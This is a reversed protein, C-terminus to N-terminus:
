AESASKEIQNMATTTQETIANERAVLTEDKTAVLGSYREWVLVIGASSGNMWMLAFFPMWTVYVWPVVVVTVREPRARSRLRTLMVERSPVRFIVGFLSSSTRKQRKQSLLIGSTITVAGSTVVNVPSFATRNSPASVPEVVGTDMVSVLPDHPVNVIWVFVRVLTTPFPLVSVSEPDLVSAVSEVSFAPCISPKPNVESLEVMLADFADRISIPEVLM